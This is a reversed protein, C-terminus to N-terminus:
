EAPIPVNVAITTYFDLSEATYPPYRRAFFPEASNYQAIKLLFIRSTQFFVSEKPIDVVGKKYSFDEFGHSMSQRGDLVGHNLFFYTTM